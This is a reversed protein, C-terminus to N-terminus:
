ATPRLDTLTREMRELYAEEVAKVPDGDPAGNEAAEAPDGDPAGDEVAEAPDGNSTVDEVAEVADWDPAGDEVAGGAQDDEGESQGPVIVGWKGTLPLAVM